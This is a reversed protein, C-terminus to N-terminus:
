DFLSDEAEDFYDDVTNEAERERIRDNDEDPNILRDDVGASDGIQEFAYDQADFNKVQGRSLGTEESVQDVLFDTGKEKIYDSSARECIGKKLEDMYSQAMKKIAAIAGGSSIGSIDGWIDKIGSLDFDLGESFITNCSEGSGNEANKAEQLLVEKHEKPTPIPTPVYSSINKEQIYSALEQPTCEYISNAGAGSALTFLCGAQVLKKLSIKM